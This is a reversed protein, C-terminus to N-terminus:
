HLASFTTEFFFIYIIRKSRCRISGWSPLKNIYSSQRSLPLTYRPQLCVHLCANRCCGSRPIGILLEVHLCDGWCFPLYISTLSVNWCPLLWSSSCELWNGHHGVVRPQKCLVKQRPASVSISLGLSTYPKHLRNTPSHYRYNAAKYANDQRPYSRGRCITLKCPVM